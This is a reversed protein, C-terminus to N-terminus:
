ESIFINNNNKIANSYKDLLYEHITEYQIHEHQVHENMSYIRTTTQQQICKETYSYGAVFM